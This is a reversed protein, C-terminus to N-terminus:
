GIGCEKRQINIAFGRKGVEMTHISEPPEARVAEQFRGVISRAALAEETRSKFEDTRPHDVMLAHAQERKGVKKAIVDYLPPKM